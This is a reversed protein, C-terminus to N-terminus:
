SPVFLATVFNYICKSVYRGSRHSLYRSLKENKMSIMNEVSPPDPPPEPSLELAGESREKRAAISQFIKADYAESFVFFLDPDSEAPQYKQLHLPAM